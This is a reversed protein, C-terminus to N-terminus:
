KVFSVLSIREELFNGSTRYIYLELDVEYSRILSKIKLRFCTTNRLPLSRIIVFYTWQIPNLYCTVITGHGSHWPVTTKITVLYWTLVKGWWVERNVLLLYPSNEITDTKLFLRHTPPCSSCKSPKGYDLVPLVNYHFNISVRREKTPFYHHLPRFVILSRSRSLLSLKWEGKSDAMGNKYDLYQNFKYDKMIGM